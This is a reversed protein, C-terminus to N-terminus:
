SGKADSRKEPNTNMAFVSVAIATLLLLAFIAMFMAIGREKASKKIAQM